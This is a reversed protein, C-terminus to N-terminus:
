EEHSGIQNDIYEKQKKVKGEKKQSIYDGWWYKRLKTYFRVSQKYRDGDQDRMKEHQDDSSPIVQNKQLSEVSFNLHHEEHFIAEAVQAAYVWKETKSLSSYLGVSNDVTITVKLYYNPNTGDIVSKGIRADNNTPVRPKGTKKDILETGTEAERWVSYTPGFDLVVSVHQYKGGIDYNKLFEKGEDTYTFMKWASQTSPDNNFAATYTITDGLQDNYIIPNNGMSVYPSEWASMKPDVTLWRGLRPDLQRFETTYSNGEGKVEDDMESGQFGYRHVVSVTTQMTNKGFSLLM